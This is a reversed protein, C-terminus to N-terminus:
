KPERVKFVILPETNHNSFLLELGDQNRLSLEISSQGTALTYFDMTEFNFATERKTDLTVTTIIPLLRSAGEYTSPQVIAGELIIHVISTNSERKPLYLSKVAVQIKGKQNSIAPPPLICQFRTRTNDKFV